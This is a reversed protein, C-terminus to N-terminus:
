QCSQDADVDVSRIVFGNDSAIALLADRMEHCLHCYERVYLTLETM